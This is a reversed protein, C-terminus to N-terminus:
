IVEFATVPVWGVKGDELVIEAWEESRRDIRIKTGEHITFLQLPSDDSPASQVPVEDVLVIAEEDVGIELELAALNAGFVLTVTGAVVAIRACWSALRTGRRFVLVAVGIAATVYGTAVLIILWTRPLLHVWWSTVRFLWFGPLPTIEDVTLSRALELNARVDDDRPSLRLAREYNLIAQGLSGLKFHANAINYRLPGSDYGAEVIRLYSELASSYDGEQYHRNGEEFFDEQAEGRVSVTVLLLVVTGLLRWGRQVVSTSIM